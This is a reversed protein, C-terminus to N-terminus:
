PKKKAGEEPVPVKDSPDFHKAVLVQRNDCVRVRFRAARSELVLVLVAENGVFHEGALSAELPETFRKRAAAPQGVRAVQRAVEECVPPALRGGVLRHPVHPVRFQVLAHGLRARLAAGAVQLAARQLLTLSSAVLRVSLPERRVLWGLRELRRAGDDRRSLRPERQRVPSACRSDNESSSTPRQTPSRVHTHLPLPAASRVSVFVDCARWAGPRSHGRGATRWRCARALASNHLCQRSLASM